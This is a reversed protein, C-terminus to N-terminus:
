PSAEVLHKLRLSATLIKEAWILRAKKNFKDRQWQAFVEKRIIKDVKKNEKRLVQSNKKALELFKEILADRRNKEDCAWWSLRRLDSSLNLIQQKTKSGM